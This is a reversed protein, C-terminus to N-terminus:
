SPAAAATMMSAALARGGKEQAAHFRIIDKMGFKLTHKFYQGATGESFISQFEPLYRCEEMLPAYFTATSDTADTGRYIYKPPSDHGKYKKRHENEVAELKTQRKEWYRDIARSDEDARAPNSFVGGLSATGAALAATGATKLFERRDKPNQKAKM